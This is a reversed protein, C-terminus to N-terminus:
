IKCQGPMLKIKISYDTYRGYEEANRPKYGPQAFKVIEDDSYGYENLRKVVCSCVRGSMGQKAYGAECTKILKEVGPSAALVASASFAYAALAVSLAFLARM